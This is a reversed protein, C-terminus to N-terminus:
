SPPGTGDEVRQLIFPDPCWMEANACRPGVVGKERDELLLIRGDEDWEIRLRVDTLQDYEGVAFPDNYLRLAALQGTVTYDATMTGSFQALLSQEDPVQQRFQDDSISIWVCDGSQLIFTREGTGDVNLFWVTGGVGTWEGTLNVSEGM